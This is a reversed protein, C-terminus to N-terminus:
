GPASPRLSSAGGLGTQWEGIDVRTHPTVQRDALFQRYAQQGAPGLQPLTTLDLHAQERYFVIDATSAAPVLDTEPLARRALTRFREGEAGPPVALIRIERHGAAPAGALEPAATEYAGALDGLVSEEEANQELYVEAAHARTLQAEAFAAVEEYVTEQLKKFFDAPATCVHVQARLAKGIRAQVQQELALLEDASLRALIQSGADSLTRCGNPLLYRGLGLDVDPQGAAHPDEFSQLFQDIRPQCCSVDRVYRHLGEGLKEFLVALRAARLSGWRAEIYQPLLNLLEQAARTRKGRAWMSRERVADLLPALGGHLIFAQRALADAQGKQERAEREFTTLLQHQIAAELGTLRFQPECLACLALDALQQDVEESLFAVGQDLAAEMVPRDTAAGNTAPWGLLREIEAMVQNTAGPDHCVRSAGGDSWGRVLADLTAEIPQKLVLACRTELRQRLGDLELQRDQLQKDAWARLTDEQSQRNDHRWSRVLRHCLCQAVRQLLLRHPVAFWFIGFTLSNMRPTPAAQGLRCADAVRGLPTTLDRCLFDGALTALERLPEPGNAESPLPLLCCRSLPPERSTVTAQGLYHEQYARGPAAYYNLETLATFCNAAASSSSVQGAVPPVLFLGAVEPHEYGLQRLLWRVTHALEIFLGSGTGGALSTVLYVRPNTTRLGLGTREQAAAMAASGTCAELESRLRASITAFNTTFALRGLARWGGTTVQDRPLRSLVPLPLWNEISQRESGPKLYHAPRHLRALLVERECVAADVDGHELDQLVGPDTDLHLLRINPLAAPARYRKHLARRLQQLIRLGVGGLSVVLAPFLVGDGTQEPREAPSPPPQPPPEVTKSAKPAAPLRWLTTEAPAPEPAGKTPLPPSPHASSKRLARVLDVCRPHRADPKKALARAIPERDHPPLPAVDPAGQLHQLMLHKSSKGSFPLQGTLLEQYVIALSYQDCFRSVVGEFTEPAAYLPTIGSTMQAQMGELDKVLGFDGVKVHNYVLFLNQPKIDLHQLQYQGNMLDLAEAAEALYDLLEDRPIGPLGQLRCEQYRDGLSRDALEMVIILRDAVIDYRDLALIYPHRVAKVRDLAKLEQRAHVEDGAPGHICGHVIKIAKLVGGPAQAKWVEGFGGEGLRELLRYGPIPETQTEITLVIAVEHGANETLRSDKARFPHACPRGPGGPLHCSSM